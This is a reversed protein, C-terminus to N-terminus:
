AAKPLKEGNRESAVRLGRGVNAAKEQLWEVSEDLAATGGRQQRRGTLRALAYAAIAMNVDRVAVDLYNEDHMALNAAIGLLWASAVYSSLRTNRTLIGVGVAMEIVGVAKMFTKGDVPLKQAARPALYKDWDTLLDTFKDLGALFATGGLALRLAWWVDNYRNQKREVRERETRM